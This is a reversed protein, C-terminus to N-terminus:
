AASVDTACEACRDRDSWDARGVAPPVLSRHGSETRVTIRFRWLAEAFAHYARHYAASQLSAGSRVVNRVEVLRVFADEGAGVQRASGSMLLHERAAYLHAGSLAQNAAEVGNLHQAWDTAVKRLASHAQDLALVFDTCHQWRYLERDRHRQSLDRRVDVLLTGALAIAAGVAASILSAWDM